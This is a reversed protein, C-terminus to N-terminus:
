SWRGRVTEQFDTKWTPKKFKNSLLFEWHMLGWSIGNSVYLDITFSQVGGQLPFTTYKQAKTKYQNNLPSEPRPLYKCLKLKPTM